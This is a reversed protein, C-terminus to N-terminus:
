EPYLPEGNASRPVVVKGEVTATIPQAPPVTPNSPYEKGDFSLRAEYGPQIGGGQVWVGLDNWGHSRTDLVRIPLRVISFETLVRYSSHSPVLLVTTCGSSGCWARGMLYVIVQQSNDDRLHVVAAVYRTAKVEPYDSNAAYKDQLFKRLSDTRASNGHPKGAAPNQPMLKSAASVVSLATDLSQFVSRIGHAFQDMSQNLSRFFFVEASILFVGIGAIVIIRRVGRPYSDMRM